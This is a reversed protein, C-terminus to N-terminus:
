TRTIDDIALATRLTTLDGVSTLSVGLLSEIRKVRLGVTNPHVFLAEATANTNLDHALYTRLTSVLDTGRRQDYERLPGIWRAALVGMRQPDVDALLMGIVGASAVTLVDEGTAYPLLRLLGTVQRFAGPLRDPGACTESVAVRVGGELTQIGVTRIRRALEEAGEPDAAPAVIVIAGDRLALLPKPRPRSLVLSQTLRLLQTTVAEGAEEHRVALVRQPLRLDSGLRDGRALVAEPDALPGSALESVLDGRLQWQADVVARRRLMELGLVVTAQEIARLRVDDDEADGALWLVGLTEEGLRVPGALLGPFADSRLVPSAQALLDLLSVGGEQRPWSLWDPPRVSVGARPVAALTQGSVDQVAVARDATEALAAAIDSIGGGRRAVGIFRDHIAAHQRLLENLASLERVRRRDRELQASTELAIGAHSALVQLLELGGPGLRRPDSGYVNMTGVTEGQNRLPVAAMSHHGHEQAAKAWPGYSPDHAIDEVIVPVGDVFSRRSPSGAFTGEPVLLLPSEENVLRVYGESLGWSGEIRLAARDDDVLLVAASEYGLLDCATRAIQELLRPLDRQQNVAIALEDIASMCRLLDPGASSVSTM